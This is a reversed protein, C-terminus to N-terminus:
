FLPLGSMKQLAAKLLACKVFCGSIKIPENWLRNKKNLVLATPSACFSIVCAASKSGAICEVMWYPICDCFSVVLPPLAISVHSRKSAIILTPEIYKLVHRKLFTSNIMPYLENIWCENNNLTSFHLTGTHLLILQDHSAYYRHVESWSKIKYPHM